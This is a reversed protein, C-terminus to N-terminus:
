YIVHFCKGIRKKFNYGQTPTNTYLTGLTKPLLTPILTLVSYMKGQCASAAEKNPHLAPNQPALALAVHSSLNRTPVITTAMKNLTQGPDSCSSCSSQHLQLEKQYLPLRQWSQSQSRPEFPQPNMRLQNEMKEKTQTGQNFGANIVSLNTSGLHAPEAGERSCM